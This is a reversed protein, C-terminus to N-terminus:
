SSFKHTWCDKYFRITEAVSKKWTFLSAQVLGANVVQQRYKEDELLLIKEVFAAATIETAFLGANGAVEPISTCNTTVVPCGAKMAEGPPFGFGEYVSPYLLCHAYNYLLNLDAASVQQLIHYRGGIRNEILRRERKSWTGGGAIVLKYHSPLLTIVDLAVTFNKYNDRGGVYLLYPAKFAEPLPSSSGNKDIPYFTDAIGHYVVKLKAPDTDPYFHLLEKRTSDSICIIGDARKIGYAKQRINALGRPFASAIKREHAFDHVTLINVINQQPSVRLYGGHFIANAPLTYRLPMYRLYRAPIWSERICPYHQYHLQQEFINEPNLGTNLFSIPLDSNCLGQLLEYWYVSVGGAKQISFVINDLFLQM